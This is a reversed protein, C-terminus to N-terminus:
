SFADVVLEQNNCQDRIAQLLSKNPIDVAIPQGYTDYICEVGREVARLVWGDGDAYDSLLERAQSTTFSKDIINNAFTSNAIYLKRLRRTKLEPLFPIKSHRIDLEKLFFSNKILDIARPLNKESAGQLSLEEVFFYLENEKADELDLKKRRDLVLPKKPGEIPNDNIGTNLGPFIKKLDKLEYKRFNLTFFKDYEEQTKIECRCVTQNEKWFITYGNGEENRITMFAREEVLEHDLLLIAQYKNLTKYFNASKSLTNDLQRAGEVQVFHVLKEPATKLADPQRAMKEMEKLNAMLGEADEEQRMSGQEKLMTLLKMSKSIAKDLESREHLDLPDKTFLEIARNMAHVLRVRDANEIAAKRVLSIKSVDYIYDEEQKSAMSPFFGEAVKKLNNLSAIAQTDTGDGTDGCGEMYKRLDTLNLDVSKKQTLNNKIFPDIANKFNDIQNSIERRKEASLNTNPNTKQIEQIERIHQNMADCWSDLHFGTPSAM